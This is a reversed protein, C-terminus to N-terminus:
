GAAHDHRGGAAAAIDAPTLDTLLTATAQRARRRRRDAPVAARRRAGRRDRRGHHRRQHQLHARRRGAGIPAIVPIMGAAVATDILTTDVADPEGVFGLDVAQEIQSDPDKRTRTVKRRPSWGATRARSASRRAAPRRSGASWSRTSRARCSWRPSRPPRRTPSACATSSAHKRRGAEQADRRDAPRRRPGGGPQHRGGEAARHGRRLRARGRSRGDRPRRIEGRLHARCLAPSLAAGRDAEGRAKALMAQTDGTM